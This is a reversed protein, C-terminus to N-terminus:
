NEMFGASVQLDYIQKYAGDQAILECHTGCQAIRGEDLVIVLDARMVTTIRHSIILTTSTLNESLAKRIALDTDTDVASLSDDFILVPPKTILTRAIALRQKQGGSLTVGREGVLTEYGKEFASISENIHAIGAFKRVDEKTASPQAININEEITRSFLFPEQLILGIKGRLYSRDINKINIGDILIEGDSVDYLRNLLHVLSSKGSGTGGVIGLTKHAGIKFSVNDIVNKDPSDPYSFSVNKFEIEGKIVPKLADSPEPEPEASMVENIRGTSIRAKSLEGLIRGLHRVPWIITQNYFIFALFTGISMMDKAVFVAGLLLVFLVQMGALLDGSGWFAGMAKSLSIWKSSVSGTKKQFEETEFKQRGHARVIRVGTLNEQLAASVAGEAEDAEQFRAGVKAFYTVSVFFIVPLFVAAVLAIWVNMFFMLVLGLVVLIVTQVLEVFQESIFRKVMDVDSTSRQIIDGTQISQHWSFPLKQIHSFLANKMNRSVIEGCKQTYFRQVFLLLNQLVSVIILSVALVYIHSLFWGRGPLRLFLALASYPEDKFVSDATFSIIQPTIYNLVTALLGTLLATALLRRGNGVFKFFARLGGNKNKGKSM